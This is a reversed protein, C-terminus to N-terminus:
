KDVKLKFISCLKGVIGKTNESLSSLILIALYSFEM